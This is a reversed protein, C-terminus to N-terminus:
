FRIFNHCIILLIRSIKEIIQMSSTNVNTYNFMFLFHRPIRSYKNEIFTM